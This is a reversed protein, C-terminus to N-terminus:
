RTSVTTWLSCLTITHWEEEPSAGTMFTDVVTDLTVRTGAVGTSEAADTM